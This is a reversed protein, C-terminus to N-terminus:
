NLQSTFNLSWTPPSQSLLETISITFHNKNDVLNTQVKLLKKHKHRKLKLSKSNNLSKNLKLSQSSINRKDSRKHSELYLRESM